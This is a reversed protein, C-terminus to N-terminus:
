KFEIQTFLFKDAYNITKGAPVVAYQVHTGDQDWGYLVESGSNDRGRIDSEWTLNGELDYVKLTVARQSVVGSTDDEQFSRVLIVNRTPSFVVPYMVDTGAQPSYALPATIDHLLEGNNKFVLVHTSHGQTKIVPLAFLRDDASWAILEGRDGDFTYPADFLTSKNTPLDIIGLGQPSSIALKKRDSSIGYARIDEYTRLNGISSKLSLDFSGQKGSTARINAIKWTATDLTDSVNVDNTGPTNVYSSLLAAFAILTCLIVIALAVFTGKSFLINQFAQWNQQPNFFRSMHFTIVFPLYRKTTLWISQGM